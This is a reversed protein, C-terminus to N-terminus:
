PLAPRAAVASTQIPARDRRHRELWAAYGGVLAGARVAGRRLLIAAAMASTQEASCGCYTVIPRGAARAVLDAARTEIEHLPVHVASPIHGERYSAEGRVDVVLARGAAHLAAFEVLSIRPATEPNVVPPPVPPTVQSHSTVWTVFSVALALRAKSM